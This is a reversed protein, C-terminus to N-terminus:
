LLKSCLNLSRLVCGTLGWFAKDVWTGLQWFSTWSQEDLAVVGLGEDLLM